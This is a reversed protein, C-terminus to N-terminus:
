AEVITDVLEKIKLLHIRSANNDGGSVSKGKKYVKKLRDTPIIFGLVYEGNLTLNHIWVDSKTAEIGSPKGYSQYEVCINGTKAWMDRETKVEATNLNDVIFDEWKEGFQLDLDFDKFSKGRNNAAM